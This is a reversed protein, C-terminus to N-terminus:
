PTVPQAPPTSPSVPAPLPGTAPKPRIPEQVGPQQQSPKGTNDVFISIQERPRIMKVQIEKSTAPTDFEGGYTAFGGAIVQLRVHSGVPIVDIIAKGDPATKMELGGMETGDPKVPHFIVAANPIPKGNFGKLVEVTIHCSEPPAKYKRGHKEDQAGACLTTALLSLAAIATITRTSM